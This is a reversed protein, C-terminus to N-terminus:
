SMTPWPNDAEGKPCKEAGGEEQEGEEARGGRKRRGQSTQSGGGAVRANRVRSLHFSRVQRKLSMRKREEQEEKVRKTDASEGDEVLSMLQRLEEGLKGINETVRAVGEAKKASERARVWQRYAVPFTWATAMGRQFCCQVHQSGYKGEIQLPVDPLSLLGLASSVCM